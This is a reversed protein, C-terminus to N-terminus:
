KRQIVCGCYNCIATSADFWDVEKPNVPGGCNGCNSPLQISHNYHEIAKAWVGSNKVDEPVNESIWDQVFNALDQQNNDRLRDVTFETSKKLQRWKKRDLLWTFGKILTEKAEELKDAKMFSTSSRFYLNSTQPINRMKAKEAIRLYFEAAKQYEGAAFLKHAELLKPPIQPRKRMGPARRRLPYIPRRRM